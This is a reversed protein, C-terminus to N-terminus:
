SIQSMQLSQWIASTKLYSQDFKKFTAYHTMEQESM